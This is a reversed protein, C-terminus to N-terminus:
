KEDLWHKLRRVVEDSLDDWGARLAVGIKALSLELKEIQETTEGPADARLRALDNGLKRRRAEVRRRLEDRQLLM